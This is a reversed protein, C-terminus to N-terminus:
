VLVLALPVVEALDEVGAMALRPHLLSIHLPQYALHEEVQQRFGLNQRLFQALLLRLFERPHDLFSQHMEQRQLFDEKLQQLLLGLSHLELFHPGAPMQQLIILQEAMGVVLIEM